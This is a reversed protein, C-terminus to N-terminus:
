MGRTPEDPEHNRPPPLQSPPQPLVDLYIANETARDRISGSPFEAIVARVEESSVGFYHRLYAIDELDKKAARVLKSAIINEIPPRVVTLGTERLITETSRFSGVEVIGPQVIQIYPQDPELEDKPDFLLGAKEVAQKLDSYFFTSAKNWVDIDMSIRAQHSFMGVASGIICLSAPHELHQSIIRLKEAWQEPSLGGQQNAM